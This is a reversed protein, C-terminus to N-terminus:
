MLTPMTSGARAQKPSVGFHSTFARTFSAIESYGVRTAAETVTLGESRLLERAIALRRDRWYGQVTEGFVQKFGIALKTRNVGVRAALQDLSIRDCPNADMIRRAMTIADVDRASIGGHERHKAAQNLSQLLTAVLEMSKAQMYATRAHGQFSCALMDNVAAAGAPHLPSLTVRTDERVGEVLWRMEDPVAQPPIRFFREMMAPRMYLCAARHSPGVFEREILGNGSYSAIACVSDPTEFAAEGDGLRESGGGKLRFQINMWGGDGIIQREARWSFRRVESLLLILDQDLPLVEISGNRDKEDYRCRLGPQGGYVQDWELSQTTLVTALRDRDLLEPYHIPVANNVIAERTASEM